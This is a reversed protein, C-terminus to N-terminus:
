PENIGSISIWSNIIKKVTSKCSEFEQNTINRLETHKGEHRSGKISPNNMIETVKDIDKKTLGSESLIKNYVRSNQAKEIINYLYSLFMTENNSNKFNELCYKLQYFEEDGLRNSDKLIFGKSLKKLKIEQFKEIAFEFNDRNMDETFGEWDSDNDNKDEPFQKQYEEIHSDYLNYFILRNPFFEMDILSFDEMMDEMLDEFIEEIEDESFDENDSKEVIMKGDLDFLDYIDNWLDEISKAHLDISSKIRKNKFLFVYKYKEYM